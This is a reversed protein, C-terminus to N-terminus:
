IIGVALARKGDIIEQTKGEAALMSAVEVIDALEARAEPM